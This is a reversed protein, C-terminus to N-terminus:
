SLCFLFSSCSKGSASVKKNRKSLAMALADALGGGGGGAPAGGSSAAGGSPAADTGGPVMAASRDRKEASTVRRLRGAGVGGTSRISALLSDKTGAPMPLAPAAPM